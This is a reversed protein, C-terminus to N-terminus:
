DAKPLKKRRSGNAFLRHTKGVLESLLTIPNRAWQYAM